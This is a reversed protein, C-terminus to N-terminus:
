RACEELAGGCPKKSIKRTKMTRFMRYVNGYVLGATFFRRPKAKSEFDLSVANSPPIPLRRSLRRPVHKERREPRYSM